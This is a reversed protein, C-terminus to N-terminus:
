AWPDNMAIMERAKGSFLSRRNLGTAAFLAQQYYATSPMKTAHNADQGMQRHHSSGAKTTAASESSLSALAAMIRKPHLPKTSSLHLTQNRDRYGCLPIKKDTWILPETALEPTPSQLTSGDSESEETLSSSASDYMFFSDLSEEKEFLADVDDDISETNHEKKVPPLASANNKAQSKEEQKNLLCFFTSDDQSMPWRSESFRRSSTSPVPLQACTDKSELDVPTVLPLDSEMSDEDSVFDLSPEMPPENYEMLSPEEFDNTDNILVDNNFIRREAETYLKEPVQQQQQASAKFKSEYRFQPMEEDDDDDDYDDHINNYVPAAAASDDSIYLPASLKIRKFPKSEEDEHEEEEDEEESEIPSDHHSTATAPPNVSKSKNQLRTQRTAHSVPGPGGSKESAVKLTVKKVANQKATKLLSTSMGNKKKSSSSSSSTSTSKPRTLKPKPSDNAESSKRRLAGRTVITLAPLQPNSSRKRKQERLTPAAM